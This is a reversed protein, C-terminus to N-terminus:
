RLFPHNLAEAASIRDKPDLQLMPLIFDTLKQVTIRDFGFEERFVDELKWEDIQAIIKLKGNPKFFKKPFGGNKIFDMPMPGILEIM